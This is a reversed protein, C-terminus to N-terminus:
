ETSQDGKPCTFICEDAEARGDTSCTAETRSAPVTTGDTSSVCQCGVGDAAAAHYGVPCELRQEGGAVFAPLSPGPGKPAPRAHTKPAIPAADAEAHAEALKAQAVHLQTELSEVSASNDTTSPSTAPPTYDICATASSAIAAVLTLRSPLPLM